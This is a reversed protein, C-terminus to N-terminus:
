ALHCQASVGLKATTIWDELHRGRELFRALAVALHITEPPTAAAAVAAVLNLREAEVWERAAASGTFRPLAEQGAESEIRHWAANLTERYYDIVRQFAQDPQDETASATACERAFIRVLEHMRWRESQYQDLLHARALRALTRRVPWTPQDILASAAETSIDTGPPGALLRFVHADTADLRQYSLDFAARVALSGYSLPELRSNEEVMEDALDTVPLGPDEVLIAAIIQLALPLYGCLRVLEAAAEPCQSVRLDVSHRATIAAALLQVAQPPDLIALDLHAANPLEGLTHRSTVLVRHGGGSHPLLSTIQAVASINDAVLLVLLQRNALQVLIQQYASAQADVDAPVNEAPVGLGRLLSAFVREPIVRATPDPDYGHLDIFM